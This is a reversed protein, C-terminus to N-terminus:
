NYAITKIQLDSNQFDKNKPLNEITTRVNHQTSHVALKGLKGHIQNNKKKKKTVYLVCHVTHFFSLNPRM